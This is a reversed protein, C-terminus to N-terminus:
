ANGNNKGRRKINWQRRSQGASRNYREVSADIYDMAAKAMKRIEHKALAVRLDIAADIREQYASVREGGEVTGCGSM